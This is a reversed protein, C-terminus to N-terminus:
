GPDGEIDRRLWARALRWDSKTTTLSSGTLEATEELSLGAFYRHMVVDYWRWNYAELRHMSDDLALFDIADLGTDAERGAMEDDELSMVRADGGRKKAHKERWHDRLLMRMALAMSRFFTRRSEPQDRPPTPFKRDLLLFAEHALATPQMTLGHEGVFKSQAAIARLEGYVRELLEQKAQPDGERAAQICRTLDDDM